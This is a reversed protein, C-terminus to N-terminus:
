DALSFHFCYMFRSEYESRGNFALFVFRHIDNRVVMEKGKDVFQAEAVNVVGSVSSSTACTRLEVRAKSLM